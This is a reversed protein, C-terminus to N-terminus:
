KKGLRGGQKGGQQQGGSRNKNNFEVGGPGPKRPMGHPMKPIKGARKKHKPRPLEESSDSQLSESDSDDVEEEEELKRKEGAKRENMKGVWEVRKEEKRSRREEVKVIEVDM